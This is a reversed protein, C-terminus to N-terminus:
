KTPFIHYMRVTSDASARMRLFRARGQVYEYDQPAIRVIRNASTDNGFAVYLYKSSGLNSVKGFFQVPGTIDTGSLACSDSIFYATVKSSDSRVVQGSAATVALAILVLVIATRM